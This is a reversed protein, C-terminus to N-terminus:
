EKVEGRKQKGEEGRKREEKEVDDRRREEKEGEERRKRGKREGMLKRGKCQRKRGRTESWNRGKEKKRGNIKRDKVSKKM